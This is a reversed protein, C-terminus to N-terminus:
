NTVGELNIGSVNAAVFCGVVCDFWHNQRNRPCEWEDVRRTGSQVLKPVESSLHQALQLAEFRNDGYISFCGDTGFATKLRSVYFSKWYNTDILVHQSLNIRQKTKSKIKWNHGDEVGPATTREAFPTNKAGVGQGISALSKDINTQCFDYVSNATKNYGADVLCLNLPIRVGDQRQWVKKFYTSRLFELGERCYSEEDLAPYIDELTNPANQQTFTTNNQEPYTGYDILYGTFDPTWACIAYYHLRKHVDIFMTIRTCDAPVEDRHKQNLKALVHDTTISSDSENPDLPRNQAEAFFADPDEFYLNMAHQIASVEGPETIYDWYVKAGKNLQKRHKKYFKNALQLDKHQLLSERRVVDYQSWLDMNEPMPDLMSVRRGNWKPYKDNDLVEDFYDGRQLVTGTQIVAVNKGPGKVGKIAKGVTKRIKECQEPSEASEETQLDDLLIMDPRIKVGDARKHGTGRIGGGTIGAVKIVSGSAKSGKVTPFVIKNASWRIRTRVGQCMQGNARTAIGELCQIPYVVEPYLELLRQNTELETKIDDIIEIAATLNCCVILTYYRRGTLIAWLVAITAITTKGSGRPMAIAKDGGKKIITEFDRILDLHEKSFEYEFLSPFCHEM